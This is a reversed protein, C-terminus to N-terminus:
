ELMNIVKQLEEPLDTELALSQGDPKGASAKASSPAIFQLKHAHLFLRNLGKPQQWGKPAYITDGAIPCGISKLHVRIQHTRGTQPAVDLLTFKAFSKLTKYQTVSAKSDIMKKGSIKTTRKMGIRGLPENITGSNNEPRGFVLAFYYKHVAHEQFQKKMYEFATENKTIILLGSTDKDLRHVIGARPVEKGSAIFPEGVNKLKPYKEIVWDVVSPQTDDLNKQHTILGSPKNIVVINNDEYVIKIGSNVM